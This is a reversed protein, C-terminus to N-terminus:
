SFLLMLKLILENNTGSFNGFMVDMHSHAVIAALNEASHVKDAM